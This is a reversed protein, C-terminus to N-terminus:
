EIPDDAPVPQALPAALPLRYAAAETANRVVVTSGYLAFTNWTHGDIAQFQGLVTNRSEPTAEVLFLEGEESLVLLADGVMLIQGHGYRGAKWVREGTALDVCELVGESLGYAHGGKIAVNTLKTRLVRASHWEQEPTFSGDGNPVLRYLAAGSGYGKSVFVKDPAVPVAQSVNSDAATVGPWGFEWLVEGTSADHGTVFNENVMLIQPVGALVGYGPSAMSVNHNGAEWAVEGHAKQYAVVSVRRSASGGVGVVLNDGIVLPSTPRGYAVNADEEALSIGYDALVDREWIISGTAGDLAVLHGRVGMAYVVGEHILPTSRPGQGGLPHAFEGGIETAWELDGTEVDYLTVMEVGGREELTAAFGNVVAFGGWGSGVPEKWLLEPPEAEWDRALEVNDIRLSRDSGLYGAFDYPTTTVLDVSGASGAAGSEVAPAGGGRLGIIPVMAGSVGRIELTLNAVVLVAIVAGLTILRTRGSHASRLLFWGLGVIVSLLVLVYTAVNMLGDDPMDLIRRMLIILALAVIWFAWLWRPPTTRRAM